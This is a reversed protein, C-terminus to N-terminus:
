AEDVDEVTAPACICLARQLWTRSVPPEAKYFWGQVSFAEATGWQGQFEQWAADSNWVLTPTPHADAPPWLRGDGNQTNGVNFSAPSTAHM